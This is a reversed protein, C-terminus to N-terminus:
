SEFKRPGQRDSRPSRPSTIILRTAYLRAQWTLVRRTKPGAAVESSSLPTDTESKGEARGGRRM